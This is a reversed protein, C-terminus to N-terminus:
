ISSRCRHPFLEGNREHPSQTSVSFTTNGHPDPFLQGGATPAKGALVACEGFTPKIAALTVSTPRVNFCCQALKENSYYRTILETASILAM